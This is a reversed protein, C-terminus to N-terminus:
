SAFLQIEEHEHTIFFVLLKVPVLCIRLGEARGHPCM